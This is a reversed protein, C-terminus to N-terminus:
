IHGQRLSNEIIDIVNSYAKLIAISLSPLFLRLGFVVLIPNTAFTDVIVIGYRAFYGVNRMEVVIAGKVHKVDAEVPLVKSFKRM